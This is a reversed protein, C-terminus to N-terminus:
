VGFDLRQQNVLHQPQRQPASKVHGWRAQYWSNTNRWADDWITEFHFRNTTRPLGLNYVDSLWELCQSYSGDDVRNTYNREVVRGLREPDVNEVQVAFIVANAMRATLCMGDLALGKNINSVFDLYRLADQMGEETLTISGSRISQSDSQKGISAMLVNTLKFQGPYEDYLLKRLREYNENGQQAYSKIYDEDNWTTGSINMSICEHIGLNPVIVYAIPLGLKKLAMYRGQGDIIEMKENALIPVPIYGVENISSSIKAERSDKVDRNDPMLRFMGYDTTYHIENGLIQHVKIGNSEM